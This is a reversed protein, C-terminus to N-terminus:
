GGVTTPPDKGHTKGGWSQGVRLQMRRESRLGRLSSDWKSEYRRLMTKSRSEKVEAEEGGREPEADSRKRKEKEIRLRRNM